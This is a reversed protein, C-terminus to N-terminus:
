GFVLCQSPSSGALLTHLRKFNYATRVLAWETNVNEIGRLLFQRFGLVSKIIGFVPEVTEKRKKYISKGKKTKLKRVMKEKKSMDAPPRGPPPKKKLDDVKKGHKGKEVACYVEAGEKKGEANVQEVADVAKESYFGSDASVTNVQRVEEPVSGVAQELEQKDNAHATVYGGLILMSGETDVAAQANYSQEFQKGNGAKMIRSDRDTFNHQYKDLEKGKVAGEQEAEKYMAEMETRAAELAAQREKRRKIEEPISLGEDLGKGDAEEAMKMLEVVEKQMEHIIEGARKYSVAKHKSANAKIKTGDVSIGGVKKLKKVQRALL